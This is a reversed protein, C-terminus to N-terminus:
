SGAERSRIGRLHYREGQLDQEPAGVKNEILVGVRREERLVRLLLDTQGDTDSVSHWAGAFTVADFGIKGCFWCVFDESLHFEEMLLLDIDREVVTALYRGFDSGLGSHESNDM